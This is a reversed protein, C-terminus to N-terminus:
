GNNWALAPLPRPAQGPSYEWLTMKGDTLLAYMYVRIWQGTNCYCGNGRMLLEPAHTHGFVVIDNGADLLRGAEDRYERRRKENIRLAMLKRSSGSFFSALLVGLTPHLMKYLRQNVPNRLLRKLMRYGVDAKIIGDGHYLHTRKGQLVTEFRDHHIHIGVTNHLFTGVAFDHNGAIYHVEVGREVLNRIEHVVMFYDPRIAYRYEIWFDFLDGLIYVASMSPAQERLFAILDRERQECGRIRAGLHADSFFCIPSPAM